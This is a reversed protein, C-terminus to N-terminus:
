LGLIEKKKIDFEEQSIIGEDLLEKFKRIEDADSSSQTVNVLNNNASHVKDLILSGAYQFAEKLDKGSLSITNPQKAPDMKKDTSWFSKDTNQIGGASIEFYGGILQTSIEVNTINRYPMKFHGSGFTNGTMFGKKIIYVNKDTCFLFEKFSGKLAVFVEESDPINENAVSVLQQLYVPQHYLEKENFSAM